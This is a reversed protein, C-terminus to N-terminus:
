VTRRMEQNVGTSSYEVRCYKCFPFPESDQSINQRVFNPGPPTATLRGFGRTGTRCVFAISVLMRM